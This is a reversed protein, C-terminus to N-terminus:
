SEILPVILSGDATAMPVPMMVVQSRRGVFPAVSSSLNEIIPVDNGLLGLHATMSIGNGPRGDPSPSDVGVVAAGCELLYDVASADLSPYSSYYRYADDWYRSAATYIFVVDGSRPRPQGDRLDHFGISSGSNRTGDLVIVDGCLEAPTIDSVIRGDSFFHRPADIHTGAHSHVSIDTLQIRVGGSSTSVEITRPAFAIRAGHAGGPMHETLPQALSVWAM